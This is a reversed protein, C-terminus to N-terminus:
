FKFKGDINEIIANLLIYLQRLKTQINYDYNINEPMNHISKELDDENITKILDDTKTYVGILSIPPHSSYLTTYIDKHVTTDFSKMIFPYINEKELRGYNSNIFKPLEHNTMRLPKSMSSKFNQCNSDCYEIFTQCLLNNQQCYFIYGTAFCMVKGIGEIKKTIPVRSRPLEFRIVTDTKNTLLKKIYSYVSDGAQGSCTIVFLTSLFVLTTLFKLNM